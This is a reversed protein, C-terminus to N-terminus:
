RYQRRMKELMTCLASKLSDPALVQFTGTSSLLKQILLFENDTQLQVLLHEPHDPDPRITEKEALSVYQGPTCYLMRLTYVPKNERKQSLLRHMEIDDAAQFSLIRDARLMVSQERDPTYGLLYLTAQHQFVKEPLIIFQRSGQLPSAYTLDMLTQNRCFLELDQLTTESPVREMMRIETFFQQALEERDPNSAHQFVDRLWYNFHLIDWNDLSDDICTHAERLTVRDTPSLMYTFPHSMLEYHYNNKPSPRSIKCGLCKLTNIYLWLTDQSLSKLVTEETSFRRNIEELTLPEQALWLLLKFIRYATQNFSNQKM